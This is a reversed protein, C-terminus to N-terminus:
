QFFEALQNVIALAGLAIVIGIISATIMKRGSEIRKEDGYATLYTSGGWVLGIMSLIGVIGLLFNLVNTIIQKLTLANSISDTALGGTAGGLIDIIERLFTPAALAISLGILAATITNKASTMKKDDGTSLIYMIAGIVIFVLTVSVIIGRLNGLVTSVVESVTNYNLPNPFSASSSATEGGGAAFVSGAFSLFVLCFFIMSNSYFFNQNKRLM